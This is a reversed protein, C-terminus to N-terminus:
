ARGAATTPAAPPGSNVVRNRGQRKAEYLRTDALRIFDDLSDAAGPVAGHCGVSVTLRRRGQANEFPSDEVARRLSELRDAFEEPADTPAVVVFEEGGYRAVLDGGRRFCSTLIAAVHQLCLDGFVHGMEDNIPKFHDVDVMAIAFIRGERRCLAFDAAARADFHLRNSLGTLADTISIDRLKRNAENLASNLRYLKRNWYFFLALLVLAAGALHLVLTYDVTREVRVLMRRNVITQIEDPGLGAVLKAIIEGLLPEDARTAIAARWDEAVRGSIKVENVGDNTIVYALAPLTGLVADLDGNQLRDIGAKENAVEVLTVDPYRRRLLGAPVRAPVIGVRQGSLERLSEVFPKHLQTAIAVPLVLYPPTLDWDAPSIPEETVLPLLDCSPAVRRDPLATTQWSFGGREALLSLVDAAVGDLTGDGELRMFPPADPDVCVTVVGKRDLYAREETTLAVRDRTIGAVAPGLWRTELESWRALPLASMARDIISKAYPYKPSVGFRLDERQVGDMVFEGGIEINILGLRRIIANGNSLAMIAADVEGRSLARLIEEQAPYARVEGLKQKLKEGYYIDRGIGVTKGLLSQLGEYPGFGSRVFVANPIRYYEQSFLTYAAREETHSINAIIDIDGQRFRSLLNSWNDYVPALVLGTQASIDHALEVALGQGRGDALFSFPEYDSMFGIKLAPATQIFAQEEPLLRLPGPAIARGSRYVLWRETIGALEETPLAAVAKDLIGHLIARDSGAPGRLVGLRFDELSVGTLPLAGAVDVNSFGNERAFFNGTMEAAAAADIWGFAVAALLERYSGYEVPEIGARRLADAYYIDKIVGIRKGRLAEVSELDSLPRDVNQFLVTRRLHYPDTFAIAGAREETRSIDAIVDLAGDRFQGYIEPWIGMRINFPLGTLAELRHLVDVTWGMIQGNRFFSYPENDSVVGVSVSPHEAIWRREQETLDLSAAWAATAGSLVVLVSLSLLFCTLGRRLSRRAALGVNGPYRIGVMGHGTDVAGQTVAALPPL